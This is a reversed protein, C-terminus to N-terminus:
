EWSLTHLLSSPNQALKFPHLCDQWGGPNPGWATWCMANGGTGKNAIEDMVVHFLIPLLVIESRLSSKKPVM